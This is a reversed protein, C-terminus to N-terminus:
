LVVAVINYKCQCMWMCACVYFLCLIFLLLSLSSSSSSLLLLLLLVPLIKNVLLRAFKMKDAKRSGPTPNMTSVVLLGEINKQKYPKTHTFLSKQDLLQRLLENASQEGCVDYAPLHLDEIFLKLIKNNKAGYVFGIHSCNFISYSCLDKIHPCKCNWWFWTKESLFALRKKM